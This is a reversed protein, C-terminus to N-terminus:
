LPSNSPRLVPSGESEGSPARAGHPAQQEGRAAGVRPARRPALNSGFGAPFRGGRRCPARLPRKFLRPSKEAVGWRAKRQRRAFPFSLRRDRPGRRVKRRNEAPCQWGPQQLGAPNTQCKNRLHPLPRNRDGADASRIFQSGWVLEIEGLLTQAPGRRQRPLPSPHASKRLLSPLSIQIFTAPVATASPFIQVISNM